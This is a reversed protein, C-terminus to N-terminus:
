ICIILQLHVYIVQLFHTIEIEMVSEHCHDLAVEMDHAHVHLDRQLAQFVGLVFSRLYLVELAEVHSRVCSSDVANVFFINSTSYYLCM